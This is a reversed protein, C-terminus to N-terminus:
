SGFESMRWTSVIDDRHTWMLPTLTVDSDGYHEASGYSAMARSMLGSWADPGGLASASARHAMTTALPIRGASM